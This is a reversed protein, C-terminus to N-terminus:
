SRAPPGGSPRVTLHKKGPPDEAGTRVAWGNHGYSSFGFTFGNEVLGYIVEAPIDPLAVEAEPDVYGHAYLALRRTQNWLAVDKPIYIAYHATNGLGDITTGTYELYPVEDGTSTTLIVEQAPEQRTEPAEQATRCAGLLLALLVFWILGKVAKM